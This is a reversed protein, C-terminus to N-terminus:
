IDEVTPLRARKKEADELKKNDEICEKEFEIMGPIIETVVPGSKHIEVIKERLMRSVNALFSNAMIKDKPSGNTLCKEITKEGFDQVQGIIMNIHDVTRVNTLDVRELAKFINGVFESNPYRKYEEIPYPLILQNKTNVIDGQVTM